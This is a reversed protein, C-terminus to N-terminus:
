EKSPNIIDELIDELHKWGGIGGASNIRNKAEKLIDRERAEVASAIQNTIFSKISDRLNEMGGDFFHIYKEDFEEEWSTESNKKIKDHKNCFILMPPNCESCDFKEGLGTIEKTM